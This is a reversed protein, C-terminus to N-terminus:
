VRKKLNILRIRDMPILIRWEEKADVIIYTPHIEVVSDEPLEPLDIKAGETWFFQYDKYRLVESGVRIVQPSRDSEKGCSALMAMMLAGGFIAMIRNMGEEWSTVLYDIRQRIATSLM